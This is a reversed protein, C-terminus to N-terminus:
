SPTGLELWQSLLDGFSVPIILPWTQECVPRDVGSASPMSAVGFAALFIKQLACHWSAALCHSSMLVAMM